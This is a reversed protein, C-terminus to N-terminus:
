IEVTMQERIIGTTLPGRLQEIGTIPFGGAPEAARRPAAKTDRELVQEWDAVACEGVVMLVATEGMRGRAGEGMRGEGMRGNAWEGRRGRAWERM